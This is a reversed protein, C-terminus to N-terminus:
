FILLIKAQSIKGDFSYHNDNLIILMLSSALHSIFGRMTFNTAFATGTKFLSCRVEKHARFTIGLMSKRPMLGTLRQHTGLTGDGHFGLIDLLEL